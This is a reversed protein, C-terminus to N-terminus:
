VFIILLLLLLMVKNYVIYEGMNIQKLYMQKMLATKTAVVDHSSTTAGLINIYEANANAFATLESVHDSFMLFRDPDDYTGQTGYVEWEKKEFVFAENSTRALFLSNGVVASPKISLTGAIFQKEILEFCELPYDGYFANICVYPVGVSNAPYASIYDYLGSNKCTRDIYNGCKTTVVDRCADKDGSAGSAFSGFCSQITNSISKGMTENNSIFDFVRGLHPDTGEVYAIGHEIDKCYVYLIANNLTIMQDTTYHFNFVYKAEATLPCSKNDYEECYYSNNHSYIKIIFNKPCQVVWNRVQLFIMNAQDSADDFDKGIDGDFKLSDVFVDFLGDIPTIDKTNSAIDNIVNFFYDYSGFYRLVDKAKNTVSDPYKYHKRLPEVEGFKFGYNLFYGNVTKRDPRIKNANNVGVISGKRITNEGSTADSSNGAYDNAESGICGDLHSLEIQAEMALQTLVRTYNTQCRAFAKYYNILDEIETGKYKIGVIDNSSETRNYVFFVNQEFETDPNVESEKLEFLYARRRLNLNYINLIFQAQCKNNKGQTLLMNNVITKVKNTTESGEYSFKSAISNYCAVGESLIREHDEIYKSLEQVEKHFYNVGHQTMYEIYTDYDFFREGGNQVSKILALQEAFSMHSIIGRLTLLKSYKEPALQSAASILESYENPLMEPNPNGVNVESITEENEYELSYDSGNNNDNDDNCTFPPILFIQFIYLSIFLTLTFSPPM